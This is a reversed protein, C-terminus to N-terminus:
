SFTVIVIREFIRLVKAKVERMSQNMFKNSDYKTREYNEDSFNQMVDILQEDISKQKSKLMEIESFLTSQNLMLQPFGGKAEVYSKSTVWITLLESKLNLLWLPSYNM